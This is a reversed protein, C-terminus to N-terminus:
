SKIKMNINISSYPHFDPIYSLVEGKVFEHHAIEPFLEKKIKYLAKPNHFLNMGQSWTENGDEDVKYSFRKPEIGDKINFIEGMRYVIQNESKFGAQIGMRTFKGITGTSSFLIGSVNEIGKGEQFFFGSPIKAGSKKTYDKIPEVRKRKKGFEDIEIIHKQGYLYDVLGMFSWIMSLNDHFDALAILFPKEKLHPLEWYKKQVKSFLTSGFRLPVENELKNRIQLPNKPEELLFSSPPNEKKRSVVVAEIGIEIDNKVVIFDPSEHERLIKFNQEILAAFLYIEWLRADFGNVSQFQDVFNGDIDDMHNSIEMLAMKSPYFQNDDKVKVFYPHIKNGSVIIKFLDLGQKNAKQKVIKLNNLTHWKIRRILKNRAEEIKKFNSEVEFARFQRNEDRSMLLYTYDKDIKDILIVGLIYPGNNSYFELEKAFLNMQPKRTFLMYIDFRNKNIKYVKIPIVNM